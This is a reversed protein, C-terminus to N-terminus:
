IEVQVDAKQRMPMVSKGTSFQVHAKELAGILEEIDILRRVENESLVLM